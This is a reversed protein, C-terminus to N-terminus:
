NIKGNEENELKILKKIENLNFPYKLNKIGNWDKKFRPCNEFKTPCHFSIQNKGIEFYYVFQAYEEGNDRKYGYTFFSYKIKLAIELVIQIFRSKDEYAKL